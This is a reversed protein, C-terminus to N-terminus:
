MLYVAVEVSNLKQCNFGAMYGFPPKAINLSKIRYKIHHCKNCFKNTGKYSCDVEPTCKELSTIRGIIVRFEEGNTPRKFLVIDKVKFTKM